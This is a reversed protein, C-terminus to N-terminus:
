ITFTNLGFNPRIESARSCIYCSRSKYVSCWSVIAIHVLSGTDHSTTRLHIQELVCHGVWSQGVWSAQYVLNQEVADLDCVM